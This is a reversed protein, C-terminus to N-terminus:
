GRRASNKMRRSGLARVQLFQANTRIKAWEVPKAQYAMYFPDIGRIRNRQFHLVIFFVLDYMVWTFRTICLCKWFFRSIRKVGSQQWLRDGLAMHLYSIRPEIELIRFGTADFMHRYFHHSYPFEYLGYLTAHRHNFLQTITDAYDVAFFENFALGITNRHSKLRIQSMVFHPNTFHHICANTILLDYRKNSGYWSELDNYITIKKEYGLESLCGTGTIAKASPEVIDINSFGANVLAIALYGDGAGIECLSLTKKGKCFREIVDVIRQTEASSLFSKLSAPRDEEMHYTRLFGQLVPDTLSLRNEELIASEKIDPSERLDLLMRVIKQRDSM